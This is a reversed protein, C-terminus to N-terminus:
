WIMKVLNVLVKMWYKTEFGFLRWFSSFGTSFQRSRYLEKGQRSEVRSLVFSSHIFFLNRPCKKTDLLIPQCKMIPILGLAMLLTREPILTILSSPMIRPTLHFVWNGCGLSRITAATFFFYHAIIKQLINAFWSLFKYRSAIENLWCSVPLSISCFTTFIAIVRWM